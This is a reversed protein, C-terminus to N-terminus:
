TPSWRTVIYVAGAGSGTGLYTTAQAASFVLVEEITRTPIYQLDRLDGILSGDLVVRVEAPGMMSTTGRRTALQPEGGPGERWLIFRVEDRLLEWANGASSEDVEQRTIIQSAVERPPGDDISLRDSSSACATGVAVLAAALAGRPLPRSLLPRRM